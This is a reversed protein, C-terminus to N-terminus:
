VAHKDEAFGRLRQRTRRLNPRSAATEQQQSVKKSGTSGNGKLKMHDRSQRQKGM